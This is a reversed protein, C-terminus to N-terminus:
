LKTDNFANEYQATDRVKCLPDQRPRNLQRSHCLNGGDGSAAKPPGHSVLQMHSKKQAKAGQRFGWKNLNWQM